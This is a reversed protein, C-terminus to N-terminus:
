KAVLINEPATSFVPALPAGIRLYLKSATFRISWVEDRSADARRYSLIRSGEMRIGADVENGEPDLLYVTSAERPSGGADIRIDEVGAPVHFYLRGSCGLLYLTEAAAVGHGPANTEVSITQMRADMEFRYVGPEGGTLEYEVSEDFPIGFSDILMGVPNFVKVELPNRWAPGEFRHVPRNTFRIKIKQGQEAYQLFDTRERYRIGGGASIGEDRAPKLGRQDVALTRFARAAPDPASEAIFKASDFQIETGDSRVTRVDRVVAGVLGNGFRSIFKIPPRDRDDIVTLGEIRVGHINEPRGSSIRFAELNSDRNDIVTNRFVLEMNEVMHQGIYLSPNPTGSIECDIFEIRGPMEPTGDGTNIIAIGTHNNRIRCNRFSMSVAETTDDYGSLNIVIGAFANGDFDCNEASFNVISAHTYHAELDIGCQPASGRTDNFRSDKLTLNRAGTVSIAQRHHDESIVRDITINEAATEGRTDYCGVYIGDGGSSRLTLNQILVNRSAWINITHRHSGPEYLEPNQYDAKNMVFLVAGEGRLTVNEQGYIDFLKDTRRKFDGKKARIVVGDRFVIEINSPVKIPGVIWDMGTNEVILKRAGSDIAAQLYGTSDEPDFGWWAVKAEAREGSLVGAVRAPERYQASEAAFCSCLLIVFVRVPILKKMRGSSVDARNKDPYLRIGPKRVAGRFIRIIASM